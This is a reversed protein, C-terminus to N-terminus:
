GGCEGSGAGWEEREGDWWDMDEVFWLHCDRM